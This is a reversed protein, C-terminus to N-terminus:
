LKSPEASKRVDPTNMMCDHSRANRVRVLSKAIVFPTTEMMLPTIKRISVIKVNRCFFYGNIYSDWSSSTSTDVGFADHWKKANLIVYRSVRFAFFSTSVGCYIFYMCVLPRWKDDEHIISEHVIKYEVRENNNM